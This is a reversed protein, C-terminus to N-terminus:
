GVASATATERRATERQTAAEVAARRRAERKRYATRLEAVVIQKWLLVAIFWAALFGIMGGVLARMVATEGPVGASHAKFLVLAAVVLAVQARTRRISARARPHNAISVGSPRPAADAAAAKAAKKAAKDSV